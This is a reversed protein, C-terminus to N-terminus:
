DDYGDDYSDVDGEQEVDYEAGIVRTDSADDEYVILGDRLKQALELLLSTLEGNGDETSLDILAQVYEMKPVDLAFRKKWTKRGNPGGGGYDEYFDQCKQTMTDTDYVYDHCEGTDSTNNGEASHVYVNTKPFLANLLYLLDCADFWKFADKEYPDDYENWTCRYVEPGWFLCDDIDAHWANNTYGIYDFIKEIYKKNKSNTSAGMNTFNWSGM